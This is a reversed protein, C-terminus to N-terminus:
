GVVFPLFPSMLERPAVVPRRSIRDLWVHRSFGTACLEEGSTQLIYEFRMMRSGAEGISTEVIVEDDYAFPALYRCNVETVVLIYGREEISRYPLGAERCLDTRGVEFWVLYNSHHAIGM